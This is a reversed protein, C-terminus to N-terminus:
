AQSVHNRREQILTGALKWAEDTSHARITEFKQWKQAPKKKTIYFTELGHVLYYTRRAKRKEKRPKEVPLGAAKRILPAAARAAEIVPNM